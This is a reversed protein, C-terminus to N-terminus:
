VDISIRVKGGLGKEVIDFIQTTCNRTFLNYGITQAQKDSTRISEKLIESAEQRNFNLVYQETPVTDDRYYTMARTSLSVMRLTNVFHGKLGRPVTYGDRGMTWTSEISLMADNLLIPKKLPKHTIGKAFEEDTPGEALLSIKHGEKLKFRLMSHAALPHFKVLQFFVKDVENVPISAFYFRDQHHFNAIIWRQGDEHLVITPRKEAADIEEGQFPGSPMKNKMHLNKIPQAVSALLELDENFGVADTEAFALFNFLFIAVPILTRIVSSFINM